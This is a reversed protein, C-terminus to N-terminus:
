CHLVPPARAHGGTLRPMAPLPQQPILRAYSPAFYPLTPSFALVLPPSLTLLECYGCLELSALWTPQRDSHSTTHAAPSHGQAEHHHHPYAFSVAAAPQAVGLQSASYLPGVHIMLMAFFGLWLATTFQGKRRM